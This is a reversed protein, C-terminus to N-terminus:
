PRPYTKVCRLKGSRSVWVSYSGARFTLEAVEFEPLSPDASRAAHEFGSAAWVSLKLGIRDATGIWQRSARGVLAYPTPDCSVRPVSDASSSPLEKWARFEASTADMHGPCNMGCVRLYDLSEPRGPCGRTGAAFSHRDTTTNCDTCHWPPAPTAAPNPVKVLYALHGNLDSLAPHAAPPASPTSM